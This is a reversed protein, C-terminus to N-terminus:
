VIPRGTSPGGCDGTPGRRHAQDIEASPIAAPGRAPGASPNGRRACAKNSVGFAFCQCFSSEHGRNGPDSIQARALAPPGRGARPSPRRASSRAAAQRPSRPRGRPHPGTLISLTRTTPSMFPLAAGGPPAGAPTRKPVHLQIRTSQQYPIQLYTSYKSECGKPHERGSATM